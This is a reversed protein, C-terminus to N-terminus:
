AAQALEVNPQIGVGAVVGDAVVERESQSQAHRVKLVPRNARTELGDVLQGPLVEVGKQRYFDNLFKALDPPFMRSGIGEEPFAIGRKKGNLAPAAANGSGIFGGGIVAFREGRGALDRLHTYDDLTRFYIIQEGGFPLRRPTGGTALL